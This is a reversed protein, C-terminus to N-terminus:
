KDLKKVHIDRFQILSSAPSFQGTRKNIGGHHQLGIPGSKPLGPLRVNDIVKKGNLEVSIQEGKMTILFTNWQGVPNDACVKPVTGARVEAPMEADVGLSQQYRAFLSRNFADIQSGSDNIYYEQEVDFSAAALVNALTSGLIAGRGHGVHLPGTPNVSVFEIQICQGQGLDTNGYADGASLISDVQQALWDNKLTFNIFGPPAVTVAAVESGPTILQAIIDAIELPKLGTARALKLPLSTAYDGHEPNQPREVSVEPLPVQPLKGADQAQGAAQRLSDTLKQKVQIIDSM